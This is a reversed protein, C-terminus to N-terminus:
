RSPTEQAAPEDPRPFPDGPVLLQSIGARAAALPRSLSRAGRPDDIVRPSPWQCRGQVPVRTIRGSGQTLIEIAENRFLRGLLM